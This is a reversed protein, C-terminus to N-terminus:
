TVTESARTAETDRQIQAFAQEAARNAQTLADQQIQGRQQSVNTTDVQGFGFPVYRRMRYGGYNVTRGTPLYGYTFRRDAAVQQQQAMSQQDLGNLAALLNRLQSSVSNGYKVVEPDVM